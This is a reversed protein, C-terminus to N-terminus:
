YNRQICKQPVMYGAQKEQELDLISEESIDQHHNQLGLQKSHNVPFTQLVILVKKM